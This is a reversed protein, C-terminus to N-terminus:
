ASGSRRPEEADVDGARVELRDLDGELRAAGSGITAV